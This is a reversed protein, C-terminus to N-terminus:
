LPYEHPTSAITNDSFRVQGTAVRQEDCSIEFQGRNNADISCLSKVSQNPRVPRLFKTSAIQVVHQGSVQELTHLAADLLLVGPVIPVGPFHGVFAPHDAPFQWTSERKV